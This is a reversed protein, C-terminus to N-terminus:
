TPNLILPTFLLLVIDGWFCCVGGFLPNLLFCFSLFYSSSFCWYTSYIIVSSVILNRFLPGGCSLELSEVCSGGFEVGGRTIPLEAMYSWWYSRLIPLSSGQDCKTCYFQCDQKQWCSCTGRSLKVLWILCSTLEPLM